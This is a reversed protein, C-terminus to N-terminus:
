LGFVPDVGAARLSIQLQFSRNNEKKQASSRKMPGVM